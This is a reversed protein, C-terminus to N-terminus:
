NEPTEAEGPGLPQPDPIRYDEDAWHGLDIM